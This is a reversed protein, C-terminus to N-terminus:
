ALWNAFATEGAAMQVLNENAPWSTCILEVIEPRQEDPSLCEKENQIIYENELM